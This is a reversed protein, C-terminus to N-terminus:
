LEDFGQTPIKIEEVPRGYDHTIPFPGESKVSQKVEEAGEVEDYNIKWELGHHDNHAFTNFLAKIWIDLEKGSLYKGDVIPAAYNLPYFGEYNITMVGTNPDFFLIKYNPQNM